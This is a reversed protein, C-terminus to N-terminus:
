LLIKLEAIKMQNEVIEDLIDSILKVMKKIEEDSKEMLRKLKDQLRKIKEEYLEKAELYGKQEAKKLRKEKYSYIIDLIGFSTVPM